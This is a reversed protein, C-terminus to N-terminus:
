KNTVKCAAVPKRNVGARAHENLYGIYTKLHTLVSAVSQKLFSAKQQLFSFAVSM